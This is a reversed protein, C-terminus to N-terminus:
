QKDKAASVIIAIILLGTIVLRLGSGVGLANLMTVMLFMFLAAGWVGPVCARGGAVNTGGIVTVAISALMYEDGMDLTAGGSFGSLLLGTLAAFMASLTYTVYRTYEVRVGTLEAARPNQGVASLSRGYISRVVVYGLGISLLMVLLATYPIGAIQGTTFDALLPPPQVRLGRGHSIAVSQVLFSSSMTAIIPPIRLLRILGYNFSGVALGVALAAGLGLLIREDRTDMLQMSVTGALAITSPISLDVNGPGATIVLMQGLGVLVMFVSFTLATSVIGGAGQGAVGALTVLWVLLAGLWSGLWPKSLLGKINAANM